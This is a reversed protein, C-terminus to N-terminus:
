GGFGHLFNEEGAIKGFTERVETSKSKPERFYKLLDGNL